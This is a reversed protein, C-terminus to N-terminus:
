YFAVSGKTAQKEQVMSEVLNAVLRVTDQPMRSLAAEAEDRAKDMDEPSARRGWAM